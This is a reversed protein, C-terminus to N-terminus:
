SVKFSLEDVHLAEYDFVAIAHPDSVVYHFLPHGQKPRPPLDPPPESFYYNYHFFVTFLVAQCRGFL